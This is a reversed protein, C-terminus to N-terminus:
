NCCLFYPPITGWSNCSNTLLAYRAIYYTVANAQSYVYHFLSDPLTSMGEVIDEYIPGLPSQVLSQHKIASSLIMSDTEFVVPSLGKEQVLRVACRGALAEVQEPSSVNRVRECKGGVCNGEDDRIIM